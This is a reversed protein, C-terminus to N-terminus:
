YIQQLYKSYLFLSSTYLLCLYSHLADPKYLIAQMDGGVRNEFLSTYGIMLKTRDNMYFYVRPHFLMYHFEPIDSFGDNNVDTAKQSTNGAFLTVGVKNERGSFYVNGTTEGRNTQNMVILTEPKKGRDRICM